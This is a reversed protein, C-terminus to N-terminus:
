LWAGSSVSWLRQFARLHDNGERCPSSMLPCMLPWTTCTVCTIPPSHQRLTSRVKERYYEFTFNLNDSLHATQYVPIEQCVQVKEVSRTYYFSRSFTGGRFRFGRKAPIGDLGKTLPFVEFSHGMSVSIGDLCYGKTVLIKGPARTLQYQRFCLM